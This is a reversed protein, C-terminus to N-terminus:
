PIFEGTTTYVRGDVVAVSSCGVGINKGWLHEVNPERGLVLPENSIGNHNPGRFNPWDAGAARGTSGAVTILILLSFRWVSSTFDKMNCVRISM